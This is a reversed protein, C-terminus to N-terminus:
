SASRQGALLQELRLACRRLWLPAGAFTERERRALVAQLTQAAETHRGVRTLAEAMTDAIRYMQSPTVTVDASLAQLATSGLRITELPRGSALAIEADAADLWADRARSAELMMAGNARPRRVMMTLRQAETVAGARSLVWIRDWVDRMDETGFAAERMLRRAAARDGEDLAVMAQHLHRRAVDPVAELVRRADARLGLALYLDAVEPLVSTKAADSAASVSTVLRALEALTATDDGAIWAVHADFTWADSVWYRQEREHFERMRRAVVTAQGYSRARRLASFTINLARHDNPRLEVLRQAATVAEGYRGLKGYAMVINGAAWYHDPHLRVLAEYAALSREDDGHMGHWSAIIWMREWQTSRHAMALAEDAVPRYVSPPANARLLCWALWIRAAPFDPDAEVSLAALEAASQWENREGLRYAESYLRLAELSPTTVPELEAARQTAPITDDGVVERIQNSLQRVAFSLDGRNAATAKATARADGTAVDVVTASLQYVAAELEVRGVVFATAAGDRLGVERTTTRDLPADLPRRMLRLTDDVRARSVVRVHESSTLERELAYEISRALAPHTTANEFMGILIWPRSSATGVPGDLAVPRRVLAVGAAASLAIALVAATVKQWALPVPRHRLFGQLASELAVASAVRAEPEPALASKVVTVFASPLNADALPAHRPLQEHARRLADVDTGNVPFAGTVLYHLLVGVSYVDSRESSPAGGLVEPAMYLPTGAVSRADSMLASTSFDTLVIRGDPERMVNQAKLDRHLVGARHVATLGRCVEVVIHAAERANLPGQAAVVEHLTSGELREMWLGPRGDFVEAGHITVVCQHKVRALLRAEELFRGVLPAGLSSRVLKVAVERSLREDFASYVVGHAGRGIVERLQMTGWRRPHPLLEPADGGTEAGVGSHSMDLARRAESIRELTRMADFMSRSGDAQASAMAAPWDVGEGSALARLAKRMAAKM